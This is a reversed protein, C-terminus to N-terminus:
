ADKLVSEDGFSKQENLPLRCLPCSLEFTPDRMFWEAVCPLHFAHGCALGRVQECIGIRSMCVCCQDASRLETGVGELWPLREQEWEKRTCIRTRDRLQQIRQEVKSPMEKVEVQRVTLSPSNGM